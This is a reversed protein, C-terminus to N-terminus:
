TEIVTPLVGERYHIFLSHIREALGDTTAGPALKVTVENGYVHVGAVQGSDFLVRAVRDAPKDLLPDPTVTYREHGMGTFSRDTEFRVVGSTRTPHETVHIALGM